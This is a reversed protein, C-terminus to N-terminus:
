GECADIARRRLCGLSARSFQRAFVRGGCCINCAPHAWRYTAQLWSMPVLVPCVELCSWSLPTSFRLCRGHICPGRETVRAASGWHAVRCYPKPDLAYRPPAWPRPGEPAPPATRLAPAPPSPDEPPPPKPPSTKRSAPPPQSWAAPCLFSLPLPLLRRRGRPRRQARRGAPGAEGAAVGGRVERGKGLKGGAVVVV